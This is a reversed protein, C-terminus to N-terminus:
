QLHSLASSVNSTGVFEAQSSPAEPQTPQIILIPSPTFGILVFALTLWGLIHRGLGLPVSDNATPPHRPGMALLLLVMALYGMDMTYAMFGVAAALISLSVVHARKGILTYLIHGGDLQGIPMLNLGTIFIGVWGAFLLPNLFVEQNQALPGHKLEIMWRLVLPDSFILAGREPAITVLKSQQIGFWAVPLALILGALPGSIAIDFMAKRDAVGAAQAIVAGMTGFPSGPMPIFFPPTAPVRYRVAQLFHGFEHSLLIAMVAVAYVPGHTAWTSACTAVFLVFAIKWHRKLRQRYAAVRLQREEQAKAVAAAEFVELPQLTRPSSDDM